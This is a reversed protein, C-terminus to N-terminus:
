SEHAPERRVALRWFYYILGAFFAAAVLEDFHGAWEHGIGSPPAAKVAAYAAILVGFLGEGGVLGSGFLVGRERRMEAEKPTDARREAIMRLMGGLFVPFMTALPLYVGVSFPLSPIRMLEVAVAWDIARRWDLGIGKSLRLSTIGRLLKGPNQFHLRAAASLSSHEDPLISNIAETLNSAVSLASLDPYETCAALSKEIDIIELM